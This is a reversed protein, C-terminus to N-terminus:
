WIWREETRNNSVNAAGCYWSFPAKSKSFPYDLKILLIRRFLFDQPPFRRPADNALECKLKSALIGQRLEPLPPEEIEIHPTVFLLDLLQIVHM